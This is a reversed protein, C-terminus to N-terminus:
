TAFMWSQKSANMCLSLSGNWAGIWFWSAVMEVANDAADLSTRGWRTRSAMESILEDVFVCVRNAIRTLRGWPIAM